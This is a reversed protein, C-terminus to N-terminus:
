PPPVRHTPARPPLRRRTPVTILRRRLAIWRPLRSLPGLARQGKERRAGFGGRCGTSGARPRRDKTDHGACRSRNVPRHRRPNPRSSRTTARALRPWFSAWFCRSWSWRWYPRSDSPAWALKKGRRRNLRARRWLSKACSQGKLGAVDTHSAAESSEANQREVLLEHEISRLENLVVEASVPRAEPMKHLLRMILVSLSAPIRDNLDRPAPPTETTISTLVASVSDGEFPLRGTCLRYLVCGLSFLDSSTGPPEGRAQEPARFAPTGMVAGTSTIEVDERESRAMGFDLIKVRGSPAELWINAPNIGGHILRRRHGASIGAAIERGIRLVLEMSPRHGRDLWDALAIGKSIM